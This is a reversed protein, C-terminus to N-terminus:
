LKMWWIAEDGLYSVNKINQTLIECTIMLDVDFFRSVEGLITEMKVKWTKKEKVLKKIEHNNEELYDVIENIKNIIEEHKAKKEMNIYTLRHPVSLRENETM